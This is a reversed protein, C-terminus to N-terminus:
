TFVRQIIVLQLANIVLKGSIYFIGLSKAGEPRTLEQFLISNITNWLDLNGNTILKERLFLAAVGMTIGLIFACFIKKTLNTKKM